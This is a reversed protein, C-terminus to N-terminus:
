AAFIVASSLVRLIKEPKERMKRGKQPDLKKEPTRM